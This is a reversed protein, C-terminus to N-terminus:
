QCSACRGILDLRHRDLAFGERKALKALTTDLDNELADPVVVDKVVGCQSCLLHHHHGTIHEALEYLGGDQSSMVRAVVGADQLVTLNRYLSSQPLDDVLRLLEAIGAPQGLTVMAGVIDKRKTTYRQGASKMLMAVHDHIENHAPSKHASV